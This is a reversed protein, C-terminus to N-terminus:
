IAAWLFINIKNFPLYMKKLHRMNYKINKQNLSFFEVKIHEMVVSSNQSPIDTERYQSLISFKTLFTRDKSSTKRFQRDWDRLGLKVLKLYSQFAEQDGGM